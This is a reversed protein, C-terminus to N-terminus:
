KVIIYRRNGKVKPHTKWDVIARKYDQTTEGGVLLKLDKAIGKLQSLPRDDLIAMIQAKSRATKIADSLLHM